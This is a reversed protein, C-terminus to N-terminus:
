RGRDLTRTPAQRLAITWLIMSVSAGTALYLGWGPSVIGPMGYGENGLVGYLCVGLAVWGAVLAVDLHHRVAWGWDRIWGPQVVPVATLVAAVLPMWGLSELGSATVTIGAVTVTGWTGLSGVALAVCSLALWRVAVHHPQRLLWGTLAKGAPAEPESLVPEAHTVENETIMRGITVGVAPFHGFRVCNVCKPGRM